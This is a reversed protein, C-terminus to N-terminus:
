AWDAAIRRMPEARATSTPVMPGISVMKKPQHSSDSGIESACIAPAPSTSIPTNSTERRQDSLTRVEGQDRDMAAVDPSAAARSSIVCCKWASSPKRRRFHGARRRSRRIFPLAARNPNGAGILNSVDAANEGQLMFDIFRHALDPRRSSKHSSSNDVALVAGEKPIAFGIAFPRGAARADWPRPVHRQLLRPRGLHQRHGPGQHLHQQLLDGLLTQRAPDPRADGALTGPDTDGIAHGLYRLAAAMLERQSNLVTLYSTNWAVKSKLPGPSPHRSM